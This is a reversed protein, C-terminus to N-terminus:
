KKGFKDTVTKGTILTIGTLVVTTAFPSLAILKDNVQCFIIFLISFAITILYITFRFGKTIKNKIEEKEM